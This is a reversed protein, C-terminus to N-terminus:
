ESEGIGGGYPPGHHGAGAVIQDLRDLGLVQGAGDVTDQLLFLSAGASQRRRSPQLRGGVAGIIVIKPALPPMPLVVIAVLRAVARTRPVPVM